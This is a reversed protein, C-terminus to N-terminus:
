PLAPDEPVEPPADAAATVYNVVHGEAVDKVVPADPPAAAVFEEFPHTLLDEAIAHPVLVPTGRVFSLSGYTARDADGKYTVWVPEGTAKTPAQETTQAADKTAVQAATPPDLRLPKDGQETKVRIPPETM